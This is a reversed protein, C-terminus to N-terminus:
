SKKEIRRESVSSLRSDEACNPSLHLCPPRQKAKSSRVEVPAASCIKQFSSSQHRKEALEPMYPIRGLVRAKGMRAITEMNNEEIEGWGARTTECFIIGHLKLGSRETGQGFAAYPKHLGSRPPGGPYGSAGAGGHSRDDNSQRFHAGARRGRRGCSRARAKPAPQHFAELIRDLSIERGTKAAALHPSCAPEYIFPVMDQLNTRTRGCNLWGSAFHRPRAKCLVAGLGAQCLTGARRDAGTEHPRRRDRLRADLGARGRRLLKAQTRIPVRLLLVGRAAHIM